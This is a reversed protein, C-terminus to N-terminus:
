PQGKTELEYAISRLLELCCSEGPQQELARQTCTQAEEFKKERFLCVALHYKFHWEFPNLWVARRLEQEATPLAEVHLMHLAIKDRDYGLTPWPRLHDERERAREPSDSGTDAKWV